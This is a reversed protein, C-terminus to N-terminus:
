DMCRYGVSRQCHYWFCVRFFFLMKLLQHQSFQIAMLVVSLNTGQKKGWIFIFEYCVLYKFTLNLITFGSSPFPFHYLCYNKKKLFMPLFFFFINSQILNCLKQMTSFSFSAVSHLSLQSFPLMYQLNCM